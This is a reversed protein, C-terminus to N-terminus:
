DLGFLQVLHSTQDSYVQVGEVTIDVDEPFQDVDLESYIIVYVTMMNNVM